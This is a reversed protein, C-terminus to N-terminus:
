SSNPFLHDQAVIVLMGILCSGSFACILMTVKGYFSHAHVEGYGVTTITIISLYYADFMSNIPQDGKIKGQLPQEFM